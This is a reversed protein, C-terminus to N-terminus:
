LTGSGRREAFAEAEKKAEALMAEYDEKMKSISFSEGGGKKIDDDGIFVKAVQYLPPPPTSVRVNAHQAVASFLHVRVQELINDM